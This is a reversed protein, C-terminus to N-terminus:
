SLVAISDSAFAHEPTSGNSEQSPKPSGAEPEPEGPAVANPAADEKRPMDARFASWMAADIKILEATAIKLRRLEQLSLPAGWKGSADEQHLGAWLFMLWREPDTVLEIQKSEELSFFSCGTAQKYAIAAAMTFSIPYQKGTIEVTVSPGTIEEQLLDNM